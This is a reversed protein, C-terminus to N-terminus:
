FLYKKQAKVSIICYYIVDAFYGAECILRFIWNISFYDNLIIVASFACIGFGFIMCHPFMFKIYGPIDHARELNIRNSILFPPIEGSAKMKFANYLFYVGVALIFYVIVGSM